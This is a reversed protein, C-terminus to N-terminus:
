RRKVRESISLTAEVRLDLNQFSAVSFGLFRQQRGFVM